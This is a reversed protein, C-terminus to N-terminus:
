WKFEFYLYFEWNEYLSDPDAGAYEDSDEPFETYKFTEDLDKQTVESIFLAIADKIEEDTIEDPVIEWSSDAGIQEILQSQVDELTMGKWTSIAVVVSNDRDGYYLFYDPSDASIFDCAIATNVTNTNITM